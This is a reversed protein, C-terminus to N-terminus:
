VKGTMDSAADRLSDRLMHVTSRAEAEVNVAFDYQKRLSIRRNITREYAKKAAEYDKQLKGLNVM